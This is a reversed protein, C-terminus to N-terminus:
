DQKVLSVIFNAREPKYASIKCCVYGTAMVLTKQEQSLGNSRQVRHSTSEQRACDGPKQRSFNNRAETGKSPDDFYWKESDSDVMGPEIWLLVFAAWPRGADATFEILKHSL